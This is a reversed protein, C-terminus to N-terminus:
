VHFLFYPEGEGEYSLCFQRLKKHDVVHMKYGFFNYMFYFIYNGKEKAHCAFSFFSRIILLMCKADTYIM